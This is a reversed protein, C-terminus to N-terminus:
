TKFSRIGSKKIIAIINQPINQQTETMTKKNTSVGIKLFWSNGIADAGVRRVGYSVFFITYVRVCGLSELHSLEDSLM